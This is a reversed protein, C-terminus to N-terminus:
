RLWVFVAGMAAMGVLFHGADIAFLTGSRRQFLYNIGIAPIMLGIAYGVSIMMIAQTSPESRAFQHGLTLAILLEFLFCLGFIVAMNGGAMQEETLGAERQWVKGFLAGYWVMGVVFFALAGLIVALLDIDGM